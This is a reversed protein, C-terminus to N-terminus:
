SSSYYINVVLLAFLRNQETESTGILRRTCEDGHGIWHIGLVQIKESSGRKAHGPYEITSGEENLSGVFFTSDMLLAVIFNRDPSLALQSIFNEKINQLGSSEKKVCEGNEWYIISSGIRGVFECFGQDYFLQTTSSQTTILNQM